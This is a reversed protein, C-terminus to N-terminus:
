YKCLRFTPRPSTYPRCVSVQQGVAPNANNSASNCGVNIVSKVTPDDSSRVPANPTLRQSNDHDTASLVQNGVPTNELAQKLQVILDNISQNNDLSLVPEKKGPTHRIRTPLATM